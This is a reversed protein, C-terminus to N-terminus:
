EVLADGMSPTGTLKEGWANAWHETYFSFYSIGKEHRKKQGLLLWLASPLWIVPLYLPGLLLSQITHGYEHVLTRDFVAKPTLAHCARVDGPPNQTIFIFLGLSTSPGRRWKTVVAGHYLFHAEGRHFLFLVLGALTQLLGWSCQWFAYLGWRLPNGPASRDPGPPSFGYSAYFDAIDEEGRVCVSQLLKGTTKDAFGIVTEGTCVSSQTQIDAPGYGAPPTRVKRGSKQFHM